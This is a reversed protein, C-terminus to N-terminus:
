RAHGGFVGGRRACDVADVAFQFAAVFTATYASLTEWIREVCPGSEREKPEAGLNMADERNRM